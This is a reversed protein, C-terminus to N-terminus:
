TPIGAERRFIQPWFLTAQSLLIIALVYTPSILMVWTTDPNVFVM